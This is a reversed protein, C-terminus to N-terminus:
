GMFLSLVLQQLKTIRVSPSRLSVSPWNAVDDARTEISNLLMSVLRSLGDSDKEGWSDFLTQGQCGLILTVATVVLPFADFRTWCFRHDTFTLSSTSM